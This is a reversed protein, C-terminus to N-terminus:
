CPLRAFGFPLGSKFDGDPHLRGTAWAVAWFMLLGGSVYTLLFRGDLLAQLPSGQVVRFLMAPLAFYYVFANLGDVASVPLLKAKQGAFGCFVLAFVPITAALVAWM